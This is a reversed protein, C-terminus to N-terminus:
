DGIFWLLFYVGSLLACLIQLTTQLERIWVIWCQENRGHLHLGPKGSVNTSMFWAVVYLGLWFVVVQVKSSHISCIKCLLRNSGPTTNHIYM